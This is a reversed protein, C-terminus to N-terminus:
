MLLSSSCLMWRLPLMWLRLPPLLPRHLRLCRWRTELWQSLALVNNSSTRQLFGLYSLLLNYLGTRLGHGLLQSGGVSSAAAFFRTISSQSRSPPSSSDAQRRSGRLPRTSAIRGILLQSSTRPRVFRSDFFDHTEAQQKSGGM